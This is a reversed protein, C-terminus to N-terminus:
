RTFAPRQRHLPQLPPPVIEDLERVDDATPSWQVAAANALVQEPSTAGAIVTAVTPRSALWGIAVDLVSIGRKNGFEAIETIVDVREADLTLKSLRADEPPAEASTYKGTLLGQALPFFPILGVKYRACARVLDQEPNRHLLSYQAQTSICRPHAKMEAVFHGEVVEWPSCMSTGAYRIKGETILDHLASLTEEIPTRRDPGHIQYLDIWDTGLRRLSAEVARKVYRRSTGSERVNPPNGFKTAIVVGDRRGKLAKGLYEESAGAPEGYVDAVDFMTIGCEIATAVIAESQKADSRISFRNCGLGLASVTLGSDGVQRYEM